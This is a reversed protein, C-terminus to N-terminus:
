KVRGVFTKNWADKLKKVNLIMPYVFITKTGELSIPPQTIGSYIRIWIKGFFLISLREKWDAKWCSICIQGDNWISLSSCEEDTMSPPKQLEKTKEPFDIPKM